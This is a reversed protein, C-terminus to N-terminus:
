RPERIGRYTFAEAVPAQLLYQLIVVRV